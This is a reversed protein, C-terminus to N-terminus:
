QHGVIKIPKEVWVKYYGFTLLFQEKKLNSFDNLTLLEIYQNFTYQTIIAKVPPILETSMLLIHICM